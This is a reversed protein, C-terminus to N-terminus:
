ASRSAPASPSRPERGGVIPLFWVVPLAVAAAALGALSPASAKHVADVYRLKSRVFQKAQWYGVLAVALTIALGIM